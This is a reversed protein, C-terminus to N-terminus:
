GTTERFIAGSYYKYEALNVNRLGVKHVLTVVKPWPLRTM